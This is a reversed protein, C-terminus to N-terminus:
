KVANRQRGACRAPSGTTRDRQGSGPSPAAYAIVSIVHDASLTARTCVAKISGTISREKSPPAISLMYLRRRTVSTHERDRKAARCRQASSQSQRVVGFGNGASQKKTSLAAASIPWAQCDETLSCTGASVGGASSVNTDAEVDRM